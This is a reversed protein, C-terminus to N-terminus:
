YKEHIKHSNSEMIASLLFTRIHNNFFAQVSKVLAKIFFCTWSLSLKSLIILVAISTSIFSKM